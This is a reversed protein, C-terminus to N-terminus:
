PIPLNPNIELPRPFCLCVMEDRMRQLALKDAAKDKKRQAAAKNAERADHEQRLQGVDKGSTRRIKEKEIAEQKDTESRELKKAAKPPTVDYDSRITLHCFGRSTHCQVARADVKM